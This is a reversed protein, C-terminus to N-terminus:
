FYECLELDIRRTNKIAEICQNYHHYTIVSIMYDDSKFQRTQFTFYLHSMDQYVGGYQSLEVYEKTLDKNWSLSEPPPNPVINHVNKFHKSIEAKIDTLKSGIMYAYSNDHKPWDEERKCKKCFAAFPM